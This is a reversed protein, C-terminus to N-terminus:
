YWLPNLFKSLFKQMKSLVLHSSLHLRSACCITSRLSLRQITDSPSAALTKDKGSLSIFLKKPM